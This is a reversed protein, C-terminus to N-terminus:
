VNLSFFTVFFKIWHITLPATLLFVFMNKRKKLSFMTWQTRQKWAKKHLRQPLAAVTQGRTDNHQGLKTDERKSILCFFYWISFRRRRERALLLTKTASGAKDQLKACTNFSQHRCQTGTKKRRALEFSYMHSKALVPVAEDVFEEQNQTRRHTPKVLIKM